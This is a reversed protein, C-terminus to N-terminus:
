LLFSGPHTHAGPLGKCCFPLIHVNLNLAAQNREGPFPFALVLEEQGGTEPGVGESLGAEEVAEDGRGASEELSLLLLPGCPAWGM